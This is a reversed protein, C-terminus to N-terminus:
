RNERIPIEYGFEQKVLQRIFDKQYVTKKDIWVSHGPHGQWCHLYYEKRKNPNPLPDSFDYGSKIIREFWFTGIDGWHEFNGFFIKHQNGIRRAIPINIMCCWENIRCNRKFPKLISNPNKTLPWYESPYIGNMIKEPNCYESESCINCQGLDGVIAYNDNSKMVNLYLDIINKYFKIDDHVISLYKKDTSNIAWQYRIDNENYIFGKFQPRRILDFLYRGLNYIPNKLFMKSTIITKSYGTRKKNVRIALKIPYLSELLKEDNYFSVTGDNSCDDNIYITDILDECNQKLSFLTYILSEPKKYSNIAVDVKEIKKDGKKNLDLM